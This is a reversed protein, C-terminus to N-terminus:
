TISLTEPARYCLYQASQGDSKTRVSFSGPSRLPQPRGKRIQHGFLGSPLTFFWGSTRAICFFQEPQLFFSFALPVVARRRASRLATLTLCVCTRLLLVSHVLAPLLCSSGSPATAAVDNAATQCALKFTCLSSPTCPVACISRPECATAPCPMGNTTTATALCLSAPLSNAHLHRASLPFTWRCRPRLSLEPDLRRAHLTTGGPMWLRPPVLTRLAPPCRTRDASVALRSQTSASPLLYLM